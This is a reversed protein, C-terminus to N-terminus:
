LLFSNFLENKFAVFVNVFQTYVPIVNIRDKYQLTRRSKLVRHDNYCTNPILIRKLPYTFLAKVLGGPEKCNEFWTAQRPNELGHPVRVIKMEIANITVTMDLPNVFLQRSLYM